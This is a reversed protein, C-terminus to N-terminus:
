WAALVGVKSTQGFVQLYHQMIEDRRERLMTLVMRLRVRHYASCYTLLRDMYNTCSMPASEYCRKLLEFCFHMDRIELHPAVVLLVAAEYFVAGLTAEDISDAREEGSSSSASPSPSQPQASQQQQQQVMRMHAYEANANVIILMVQLLIPHYAYGLCKSLYGLLRQWLGRRIFLMSVQRTVDSEMMLVSLLAVFMKHCGRENSMVMQVSTSLLLQM